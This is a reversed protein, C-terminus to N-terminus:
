RKTRVIIIRTLEAYRKIQSLYQPSTSFNYEAMVPENEIRQLQSRNQVYGESRIRMGSNWIKEAIM